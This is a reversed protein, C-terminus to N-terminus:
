SITVDFVFNASDSTTPNTLGTYTYTNSSPSLTPVKNTAGPMLDWTITLTDGNPMNFIATGATASFTSDGDYYGSYGQGYLAPSESSSDEIITVVTFPQGGANFDGGTTELFSFTNFTIPGQGTSNTINVKISCTPSSSSM